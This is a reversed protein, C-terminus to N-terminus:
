LVRYVWQHNGMAVEQGDNIRLANSFRCPSLPSYLHIDPIPEPNTKRFLYSGGLLGGHGSNDGPMPMLIFMDGIDLDSFNLPECCIDQAKVWEERVERGLNVRTGRIRRVFETAM